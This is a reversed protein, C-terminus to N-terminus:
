IQIFLMVEYGKVLEGSSKNAMSFYGDSLLVFIIFQNLLLCTQFTFFIMLFQLQKM